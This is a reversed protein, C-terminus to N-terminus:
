ARPVAPVRHGACRRDDDDAASRAAGPDDFAYRGVGGLQVGTQGQVDVEDVRVRGAAAPDPPLVLGRQQPHVGHGLVDGHEGVVGYPHVAGDVRAGGQVGPGVVDALSPGGDVGVGRDQPLYVGEAGLVEGAPPQLVDVQPPDVLPRYGCQRGADGDVFVGAARQPHGPGAAARLTDPDLSAGLREVGIEDDEGDPVEVRFRVGSLLLQGGEGCAVSEDVERGVEGGVCVEGGQGRPLGDEHAAEAEGEDVQHHQEGLPAASPVLVPRVDGGAPFRDQVDTRPPADGVAGLDAVGPLAFARRQRAVEAGVLHGLEDAAGAGHVEGAIHPRQDGLLQGVGVVVPEEGGVGLARGHVPPVELLLVGDRLGAAGLEGGEDGRGDGVGGVPEVEVGEVPGEVPHAVVRVFRQLSASRAWTM